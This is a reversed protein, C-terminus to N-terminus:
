AIMPRPFCCSIAASSSLVPIARQTSAATEPHRHIRLWPMSATLAQLRMVSDDTSGDDVVVVEFPRRTQRSIAALADSLLHAHNYHPIVVSMRPGTGSVDTM